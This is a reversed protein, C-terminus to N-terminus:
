VCAAAGMGELLETWEDISSGSGISGVEIGNVFVTPTVHVGRKRHYKVAWRMENSMPNGNHRVQGPSGPTPELLKLIADQNSGVGEVMSQQNEFRNKGDTVGDTLYLDQDRYLKELADSMADGGSNGDAIAAVKSALIVECGIASQPHWPQPVLAVHFQVNSWKDFLPKVKLFLKRSFPCAPDIFIEVSTPSSVDKISGVPPPYPAPPLSMKSLKQPHHLNEKQISFYHYYRNPPM